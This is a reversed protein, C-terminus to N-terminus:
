FLDMQDGVQVPARFLDTRMQPLQRSLGLRGLAVKFRAAVIEAYPGEGRMRRGWQADYDKGGHMGRLHGMVRGARDPYHVALWDQFLTSVELPLRLMSYSAAVAGADRAAGLMAEMEHDSLGPILPSTMVRVPVGAEALREIMKLRRAPHPARPEMLRSLRADLTTLSIGVGILGRTAMRGLIDIDREILTGKTVIAVPHGCDELVKLCKRTIGYEREIPQYPDTNTGMALVAVRYKPARLERVLVEAADPRAILRTEFDLGPSLGLWAHSPRAFCYVCGHECGRYANLSRDFPLDPSRNYSIVSRPREESVSTRLVAQGEEGADGPWGDDEFTAGVREYRGAANGLAGRGPTRLDPDTTQDRM